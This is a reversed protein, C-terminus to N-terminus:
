SYTVSYILFTQKLGLFQPRNPSYLVTRNKLRIQGICDQLASKSGPASIPWQARTHQFLRKILSNQSLNHELPGPPALDSKPWYPQIPVEPSFCIKKIKM